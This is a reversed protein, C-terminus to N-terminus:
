RFRQESLYEDYLEPHAAFIDAQTEFLDGGAKSVQDYAFADVQQLVDSNAGGGVVGQEQFLSESAAELCKAIIECDEVPLSEACRMLVGGLVEDHIPLQYSKAIETYERELRLYRESKAIEEAENLRQSQVEITSLAKAIVEDRDRDTLAKSLEERVSDAFSGGGYSKSVENRRFPNEFSKGVLEPERDDEYAGEYQGDDEADLDFRYAGGDADFVVDGDQLADPDLPNGLEDYIEMNNEEEGEARKAITVVAHQNAGKDVLSIEDIVLDNIQKVKRPAM